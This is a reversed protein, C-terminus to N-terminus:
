SALCLFAANELQMCFLRSTNDEQSIIVNLSKLGGPFNGDSFKNRLVLANM